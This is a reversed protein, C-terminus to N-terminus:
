KATGLATGDSFSIRNLEIKITPITGAQLGNWIGYDDNIYQNVDYETNTCNGSDAIFAEYDDASSASSSLTSGPALNTTQCTNIYRQDYKRGLSDVITLEATVQFATIFKPSTNSFSWTILLVPMDITDTSSWIM